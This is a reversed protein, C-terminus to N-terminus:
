RRGGPDSPELPPPEIGEEEMADVENEYREKIGSKQRNRILWRLFKSNDVGVLIDNLADAVAPDNLLQAVTGDGKNLKEAVLSLNEIMRELDASVKRGYEEDTLLKQLLGEGERLEAMLGNVEQTTGELGTLLATFREKLEADHLLAPLVGSGSEFAGVAVELEAVAGEVRQALGADNFLLGLTGQGEDIKALLSDLSALTSELSQRMGSGEEGATLEGLLGEGREMRTLINRLSVSMALVNDLLDEGSAMLKDVDTAPAAAIEGGRPIRPSSPSGATIEVYKDGLLGLTKIRALSDERIHQEYQRDVNITVTIGEQAVDAPLEVALVSGVNVGNLQVSGGRSLGAASTFHIQYQTKSSFLQQRDGILFIAGAFVVLAALTLLGVKAERLM